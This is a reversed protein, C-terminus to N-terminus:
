ALEEVKWHTRPARLSFRARYAHPTMGTATCFLRRFSVVDAYGCARAIVPVSQLTVELLVKAREVRLRHLYTLPSMGTVEQFHRLLTRPSTSAVRALTALRYAEEVHSELWRIARYVPSDATPETSRSRTVEAILAQRDHRPTLVNACAEILDPDVLQGLAALMLDTQSAPAACLFVQKHMTVASVESFDVHPYSRVFWAHHGWPAAVRAGDLLGLAAPLAIGSYTATLWGGSGVHQEIMRLAANNADMIHEIEYSNHVHLAPVVLLVRECQSDPRLERQLGPIRVEQGSADVIEWTLPSRKKPQRMSWIMSATRLTDVSSLISGHLAQELWLLKVHLRQSHRTQRKM